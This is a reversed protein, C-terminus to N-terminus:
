QEKEKDKVRDMIDNISQTGFQIIRNVRSITVTSAGTKEAIEAYTKKQRLMKAVEMRQAMSQLEKVTCLDEFFDYCEEKTQLSLIADFLYDTADTQNDLRKVELFYNQKIM